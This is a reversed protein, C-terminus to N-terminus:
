FLTNFAAATEEVNESVICIIYSGKEKIYAEKLLKTQVEGYGEFVNIQSKIHKKVKDLLHLRMTADPQYFITLEEVNMYSLPGYTFVDVYEDPKILYIKSLTKESQEQMQDTTFPQMTNTVHSFAIDKDVYLFPLCLAIVALLVFIIYVLIQKRLNAIM